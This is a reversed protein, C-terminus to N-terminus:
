MTIQIKILYQKKLIGQLSRSLRKSTFQRLEGVIYDNAESQSNETISWNFKEKHSMAVITGFPRNFSGRVRSEKAWIRRAHWGGARSYNWRKRVWDRLRSSKQIIETHKPQLDYDYARQPISVKVSSSKGGNIIKAVRAKALSPHKEKLMYNNFTNVFLRAARRMIQEMDYRLMTPVRVGFRRLDSVLQNFDGTLRAGSAM